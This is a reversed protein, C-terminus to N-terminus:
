DCVPPASFYYENQLRTAPDFHNASGDPCALSLLTYEGTIGYSAADNCNATGDFSPLPKTMDCTEITYISEGNKKCYHSEAGVICGFASGFACEGTYNFHWWESPIGKFKSNPASSEM